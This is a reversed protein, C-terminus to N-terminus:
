VHKKDGRVQAALGAEQWREEGAPASSSLRWGPVALFAEQGGRVQAALGAEQWWEEGAPASSSLRWGAPVALCAEQGGQSSGRSGSRAAARRRSSCIFVTALWSCSPM